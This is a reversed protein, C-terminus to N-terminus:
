IWRWERNESSFDVFLFFFFIRFIGIPNRWCWHCFYSKEHIFNFNTACFRNLSSPFFYLCTWRNRAVPMYVIYPHSIIYHMATKANFCSFNIDHIIFYCCCHRSQFFCIALLLLRWRERKIQRFLLFFISTRYQRTPLQFKSGIWNQDISKLEIKKKM